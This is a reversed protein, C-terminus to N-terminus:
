FLIMTSLSSDSESLISKSNAIPLVANMTPSVILPLIDSAVATTAFTVLPVASFLYM